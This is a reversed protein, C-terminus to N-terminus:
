LDPSGSPDNTVMYARTGLFREGKESFPPKNWGFRFGSRDTGPWADQPGALAGSLIRRHRCM